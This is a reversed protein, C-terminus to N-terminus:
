SNIKVRHIDNIEIFAATFENDYMWQSSLTHKYWNHCIVDEDITLINTNRYEFPAISWTRGDDSVTALMVVKRLYATYTM